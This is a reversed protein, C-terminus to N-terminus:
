DTIEVVIERDGNKNIFDNVFKTREKPEVGIEIMGTSM